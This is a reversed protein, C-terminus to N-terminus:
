FVWRSTNFRTKSESRWCIEDNNLAQCWKMCSQSNKRSCSSSSWSRYKCGKSKTAEYEMVIKMWLEESKQDKGTVGDGGVIIWAHCLVVDEIKNWSEKRPGM